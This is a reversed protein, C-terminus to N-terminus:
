LSPIIIYLHSQHDIGAGAMGQQRGGDGFPEFDLGTVSGRSVLHVENAGRGAVDRKNM